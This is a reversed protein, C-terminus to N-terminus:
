VAAEGSSHGNAHGPETDHAKHGHIKPKQGLAQRIEDVSKDAWGNSSMDSLPYLVENEDNMIFTDTAPPPRSM